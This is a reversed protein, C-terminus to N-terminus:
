KKTFQSYYHYWIMSDNNFILNHLGLMKAVFQWVYLHYFLFSNTKNNDHAKLIQNLADAKWLENITEKIKM